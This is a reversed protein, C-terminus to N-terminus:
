HTTYTKLYFFITKLSSTHEHSPLLPSISIFFAKIQVPSLDALEVDALQVSQAQFEKFLNDNRLEAYDVSKGDESLYKGKL